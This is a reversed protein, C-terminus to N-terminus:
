NNADLQKHALQKHTAPGALRSVAPLLMAGRRGERREHLHGAEPQDAIILVPLRQRRALHPECSLLLSTQCSPLLNSVCSLCLSMSVPTHARLVPM